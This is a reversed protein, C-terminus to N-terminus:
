PCHRLAEPGLQGHLSDRLRWPVAGGMPGLLSHIREAWVYRLGLTRHGLDAQQVWEDLEPASSTDFVIGHPSSYPQPQPRYKWNACALISGFCRAFDRPALLECLRLFEAHTEADFIEAWLSDPKGLGDTCPEDPRELGGGCIDGDKCAYDYMAWPSKRGPLINPHRGGVDFIDTKRSSFLRGFDVFVHLHIGRDSHLERGVICEGGLASILNVVEFPDLEGCQAYTLLVYRRNKLAFSPM